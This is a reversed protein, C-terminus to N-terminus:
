ANQVEEEAIELRIRIPRGDFQHVIFQIFSIDLANMTIDCHTLGKHTKPTENTHTTAVMDM